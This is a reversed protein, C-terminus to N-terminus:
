IVNLLYSGQLLALVLIVGVAVTASGGLGSLLIGFLFRAGSLSVVIGPEDILDKMAWVRVVNLLPFVLGASVGVLVHSAALPDRFRGGVVRMWSILADPWYRRVFPEVALYLLGALGAQFAAWSLGMDLLYIERITPVHSAVLAWTAVGAAFTVAAIRWAAKTDGRGLRVNRWAVLAAAFLVAVGLVNTM